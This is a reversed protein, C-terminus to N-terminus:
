RYCSSYNDDWGDLGQLYITLQFIASAVSLQSASGLGVQQSGSVDALHITM